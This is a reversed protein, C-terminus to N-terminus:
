LEREQEQEQESLMVAELAKPILLQTWVLALALELLSQGTALTVQPTHVVVISALTPKTPSTHHPPILAMSLLLPAAELPFHDTPRRLTITESPNKTAIPVPELPGLLLLLMAVLALRAQNTEMDPSTKLAVTQILIARSVAKGM